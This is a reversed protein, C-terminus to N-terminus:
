KGALRSLMAKRVPTVFYEQFHICIWITILLYLAYGETSSSIQGVKDLWSIWSGKSHSAISSLLPELSSWLVFLPYHLAFIPLSASGLRPAWKRLFSSHLNPALACLYVLILQAPLLLSNHLLPYWLREPRHSILLAATIFNGIIYVWLLVKYVVTLQYQQNQHERFLAYCLIGALFEPLRFLPFRQILGTWIIGWYQNIVVYIPPILYIFFLMILGLKIRRVKLLKTAAYPFILYFFFLASLSWLPPNFTLYLPNWAQLMFMQLLSNFFLQSNNMYVDLLALHEKDLIENTNYQVYRPTLMVGHPQISLWEIFILILVTFLLSFIHIPYLNCFRKLWFTKNSEAMKDHNFYVHTMLFGSLVFFTSTAFFGVSTLERLWFFNEIQPYRNLTHCLVIYISLIFRLWELGLFRVKKGM